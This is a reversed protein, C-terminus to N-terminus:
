ESTPTPNQGDSEENVMAALKQDLVALVMAEQVGTVSVRNLLKRINM